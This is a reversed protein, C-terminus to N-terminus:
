QTRIAQRTTNSSIQSRQSILTKRTDKNLRFDVTRIETGVVLRDEIFRIIAQDIIKTRGKIRIGARDKILLVDELVLSM